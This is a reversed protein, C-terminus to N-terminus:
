PCALTFPRIRHVPDLTTPRRRDAGDLSRVTSPRSRRHSVHESVGTDAGSVLVDGTLDQAELLGSGDPHEGVDARALRHVPRTQGFEQGVGAPAIGQRDDAEVPQAAGKRLQQRDDLLELGAAHGEETQLLADVGGRGRALQDEM